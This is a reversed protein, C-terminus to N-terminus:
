SMYKVLLVSMSCMFITKLKLWNEARYQNETLVKVPPTLVEIKPDGGNNQKGYRTLQLEELKSYVKMYKDVAWTVELFTETLSVVGTM